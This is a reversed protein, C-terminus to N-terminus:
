ATRTLLPKLVLSAGIVLLFVAVLPPDTRWVQSVAAVLAAIGLVVSFGSVAIGTVYRVVNLGLLIIGVGFLWRSSPVAGPPLLWVGGTLMLLLGWGTDNLRRDLQRRRATRWDQESSTQMAVENGAAVRHPAFVWEV